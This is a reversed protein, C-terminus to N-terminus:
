PIDCLLLINHIQSDQIRILILFASGSGPANSNVFLQCIFWTVVQREIVSRNRRLYKKSGYGDLVNNM